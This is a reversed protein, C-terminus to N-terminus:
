GHFGHSIGTSVALLRFSNRFEGSHKRTFARPKPKRVGSRSSSCYRKTGTLHLRKRTSLTLSSNRVCVGYRTRRSVGACFFCTRLKPFRLSFSISFGASIVPVSRRTSYRIKSLKRDLIVFEGTRALRKKKLLMLVEPIKTM